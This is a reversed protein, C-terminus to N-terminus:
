FDKIESSSNCIEVFVKAKEAIVGLQTKGLLKRVKQEIEYSVQKDQNPHTGMLIVDSKM